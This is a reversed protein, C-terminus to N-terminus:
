LHQECMQLHSLSNGTVRLGVAPATFWDGAGIGGEKFQCLINLVLAMYDNMIIIKNFTTYRDYICKFWM